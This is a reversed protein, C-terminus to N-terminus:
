GAAIVCSSRLASIWLYALLCMMPSPTAGLLEEVPALAAGLLEGFAEEEAM